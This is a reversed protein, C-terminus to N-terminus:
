EIKNVFHSSRFGKRCHILAPKPLEALAAHIKAFDEATPIKEVQTPVNLYKLGLAELIQQEEKLFGEEAPDRLNLVSKVFKPLEKM